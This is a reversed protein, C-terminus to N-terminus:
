CRGSVSGYVLGLRSFFWVVSKFSLCYFAWETVQLIILFSWKPWHEKEVFEGEARLDSHGIESRNEGGCRM